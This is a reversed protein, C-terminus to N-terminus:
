PRRKPQMADHALAVMLDPIKSYGDSETPTAAGVLMELQEPERRGDRGLALVAARASLLAGISDSEVTAAAQVDKMAAEAAAVAAEFRAKSRARALVADEYATIIKDVNADSM